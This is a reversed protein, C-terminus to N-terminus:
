KTNIQLSESKYILIVSKKLRLKDVWEYDKEELGHFNIYIILGFQSKM